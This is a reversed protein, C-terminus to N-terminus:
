KVNSIDLVGGIYKPQYTNNERTIKDCKYVRMDLGIAEPAGELSKLNPSRNIHFNGGVFKPCGELTELNKNSISMFHGAIREPAGLFNKIGVDEIILGYLYKPCWELSELNKLHALTLDNVNPLGYLSKIKNCHDLIVEKCMTFRLPEINEILDCHTCYFGKCSRPANDLSKLNKCRSCDFDGIVIYPAGELSELSECDNCYFSYCSDPAGKLNKLKDCNNCWFDREVNYPAGELSELNICGECSFDGSVSRPAGELSKLKVLENCRFSGGIIGWEFLGNTLAELDKGKTATTVLGYTNVRYIPLSKDISYGGEIIFNEKLFIDILTTCDKALTTEDDFLSM